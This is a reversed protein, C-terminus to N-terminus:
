KLKQGMAELEFASYWAPCALVASPVTIRHGAELKKRVLPHRGPVRRMAYADDYFGLAYIDATQRLFVEPSLYHYGSQESAMRFGLTKFIEGVWTDSGASWASPTYYLVQRGKGVASKGAVAKQMLAAQKTGAEPVGMLAAIRTVESGAQSFDSVENIQIIKIGRAELGSLLKLDGGWTRVVADPKLMLLTELSLRRQPVAVAKERFYSDGHRSRVSVGLLNERPLLGLAYQDACMDLSVVKLPASVAKQATLLGCILLAM